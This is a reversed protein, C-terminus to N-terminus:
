RRSGSSADNTFEGWSVQHERRRERADVGFAGALARLGEGVLVEREALTLVVRGLLAGEGVDVGLERAQLVGLVCATAAERRRWGIGGGRGAWFWTSSSSGRM